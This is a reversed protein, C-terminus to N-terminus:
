WGHMMRPLEARQLLVLRAVMKGQLAQSTARHGGGGAALKFAAAWGKRARDAAPIVLCAIATDTGAQHQAV